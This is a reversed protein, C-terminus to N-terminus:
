FPGAQCTNGCRQSAEAALARLAVLFREFHSASALLYPRGDLVVSTERQLDLIFQKRSHDRGQGLLRATPELPILAVSSRHRALSAM